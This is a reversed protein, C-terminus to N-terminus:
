NGQGEVYEGQGLDVCVAEKDFFGFVVTGFKIPLNGRGKGRDISVLLVGPSEFERAAEWDGSRKNGRLQGSPFSSDVNAFITAHTHLWLVYPPVTTSRNNSLGTHWYHHESGVMNPIVLIKNNRGLGGGAEGVKNERDLLCIEAVQRSSDKSNLFRQTYAILYKALRPLKEIAPRESIPAKDEYRGKVEPRKYIEKLIADLKEEDTALDYLEQNAALECIMVFYKLNFRRAGKKLKNGDLGTTTSVENWFEKIRAQTKKADFDDYVELVTLFEIPTLSCESCQEQMFKEIESTKDSLIKGSVDEGLKEREYLMSYFPIDSVELPKLTRVKIKDVLTWFKPDLVNNRISSHILVAKAIGDINYAEKLTIKRAGYEAVNSVGNDKLAKVIRSIDKNSPLALAVKLTKIRADRSVNSSAALVENDKKDSFKKAKRHGYVTITQARLLYAYKQSLEPSRLLCCWESPSSREQLLSVLAEGKFHFREKLLAVIQASRDIDRLAPEAKFFITGVFKKDMEKPPSSFLMEYLYKYKPDVIVKSIKTYFPIDNQIATIEHDYDTDIIDKEKLKRMAKRVFKSNKANFVIRCEKKNHSARYFTDYRLYGYPIKWNNILQRKVKKGRKSQIFRRAADFANQDDLPFGGAQVSFGLSRAVAVRKERTMKQGIKRVRPAPKTKNNSGASATKENGSLCALLMFGIVLKQSLSLADSSRKSRKSTPQVAFNAM